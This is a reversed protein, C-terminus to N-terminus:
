RGRTGADSTSGVAYCVTCSAFPLFLLAFIVGLAGSFGKSFAGEQRPPGAAIHGQVGPVFPPPQMTPPAAIPVGCRPCAPAQDSVQNGCERCAILM